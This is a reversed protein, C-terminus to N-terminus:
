KKGSNISVTASWFIALLVVLNGILNFPFPLHMVVVGIIFFAIIVYVM